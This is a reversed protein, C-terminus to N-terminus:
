LVKEHARHLFHCRSPPHFPKVHSASASYIFVSPSIAVTIKNIPAISLLSALKTQPSQATAAVGIHVSARFRLRRISRERRQRQRGDTVALPWSSGTVCLAINCPCTHADARRPHRLDLNGIMKKTLCRESVRIAEVHPPPLCKLALSTFPNPMEYVSEYTSVMGSESRAASFSERDPRAEDLRAGIAM